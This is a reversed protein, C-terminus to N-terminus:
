DQHYSRSAQLEAPLARHDLEQVFQDPGALEQVRGIGGMEPLTQFSVPAADKEHLIIQDPGALEQVRGGGEM